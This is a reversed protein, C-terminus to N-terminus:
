RMGPPAPEKKIWWCCYGLLRLSSTICWMGPEVTVQLDFHCIRDHLKAFRDHFSPKKFFYGLTSSPTMLHSGNKPPSWVILGHLDITMKWPHGKHYHLTKYFFNVMGGWFHCRRLHFNHNIRDQTVNGGFLSVNELYFNLLQTSKLLSIM